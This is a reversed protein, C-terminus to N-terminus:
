FRDVKKLLDVFIALLVKAMYYVSRSATISSVGGSRVSMEVPVERVKFGKKHLLVLAEVEPYDDPYHHSFFEIVKSNSARFGSTTDTFHEKLIFSVVKSFIAIGAGRAMSPKYDGLALFRSGVVVDAKGERIPALISEIHDGRHQGDGDVQIAIGYGARAAYRYGTQMTAGIGMNYPHRLVKAGLATAKSFTADSSGDDIVVIDVEPAHERIDNIVGGISVEENFAPIIALVSPSTEEM